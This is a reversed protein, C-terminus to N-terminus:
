PSHIALWTSCDAPASFAPCTKQNTKASCLLPTFVKTAELHSYHVRQDTAARMGSAARTSPTKRQSSASQWERDMFYERNM